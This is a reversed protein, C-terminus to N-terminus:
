GPLGTAAAEDVVWTAGERRALQAPLAEADRPSGFIRGLVDAKAAGHVVVLVRRAATVVAPNLTVRAVHPEIHTPAAIAIALEESAFAPSGPFVSLLHGDSGIGLLLLDFVPWGDSERLHATRLETAYDAACSAASRGAGIAEGTPFPHVNAVPIRIRQRRDDSHVSEWGGGRLLVDDFSRVNSLPHDAPVFRDDGWWTHIREWPMAEGVGSAVLARYIGVPTSGGTTAWDARGGRRDIADILTTAIHRAVRDAADDPDRVVVIEPETM